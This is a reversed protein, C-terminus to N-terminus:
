KDIVVVSTIIDDIREDDTGNTDFTIKIKDGIKVKDTYDIEWLNDTEDLLVIVDNDYEYVVGNITYHNVEYLM